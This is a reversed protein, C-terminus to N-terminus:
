CGIAGRAALADIRADEYGLGHLVERTHEGLRPAVGTAAIPTEAVSLVPTVCADRTAWFERWEQGSRAAFLEAVHAIVATQRPEEAFQDACIAECDLAVCLARWFKAELAGVAFWAGDSSQYVNYCAYGGTLTENASRMPKGNAKYLAQPIPMLAGLGGTMSIDLFQGRGTRAREILALLIRNVAHMAGGALDGLQVGPIV